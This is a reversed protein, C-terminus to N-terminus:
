IMEADVDLAEGVKLPKVSTLINRCIDPAKMKDLKQIVAETAEAVSHGIGVAMFDAVTNCAIYIM